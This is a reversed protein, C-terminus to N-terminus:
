MSVRLLVIMRWERVHGFWRLVGEDIRQDLGKTVGYLERILGNPVREMRKIGLLDRLSDM